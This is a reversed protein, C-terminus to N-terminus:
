NAKGQVCKMRMENGGSKNGTPRNGRGEKIRM